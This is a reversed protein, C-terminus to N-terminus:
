EVAQGNGKGENIEKTEDIMWIPYSFPLPQEGM